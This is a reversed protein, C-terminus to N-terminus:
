KTSSPMPNNSASQNDGNIHILMPTNIPMPPTALTHHLIITIYKHYAVLCNNPHLGVNFKICVFKTCKSYAACTKQTDTSNKNVLHNKEDLRTADLVQKKPKPCVSNRSPMDASALLALVIQKTFDLLSVKKHM